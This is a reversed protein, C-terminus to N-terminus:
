GVIADILDEFNKFTKEGNLKKLEDLSHTGSAILFCSLDANRATQYDYPSDGVYCTSDAPCQLKNLVYDTLSKEPKKWPTDNAGLTFELHKDIDLHQCAARAHPGYKNTLVACKFQYAKLKEIGKVVGPLLKLGNFMEEEFIPRHKKAAEKAREPGILKIMTSETAGGVARKVQDYTPADLGMSVLTKSFARHIADFQDILTGDLDFLVARQVTKPKM